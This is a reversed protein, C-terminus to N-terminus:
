QSGPLHFLEGLVVYSILPLGPAGSRWSLPSKRRYWANGALNIGFSRAVPIIKTVFTPHLYSYITKNKLKFDFYTLTGVHSILLFNLIQKLSEGGRGSRQIPWSFQTRLPDLPSDNLHLSGSAVMLRSSGNRGVAVLHRQSAGPWRRISLAPGRPDEEKSSPNAGFRASSMVVQREPSKTEFLAASTIPPVLSRPM